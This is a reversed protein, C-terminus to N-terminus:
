VCANRGFNGDFSSNAYRERAMREVLRKGHWNLQFICSTHSATAVLLSTANGLLAQIPLARPSLHEFNTFASPRWFNVANVRAKSAHFAFWEKDTVGLWIRM